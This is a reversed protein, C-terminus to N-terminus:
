TTPGPPNSVASGAGALRGCLHYRRYNLCGRGPSRYYSPRPAKTPTTAIGLTGARPGRPSIHLKIVEGIRPLVMRSMGIDLWLAHNTIATLGPLRERRWAQLILDRPKSLVNTFRTIKKRLSFVYRVIQGQVTTVRIYFEPVGGKLLFSFNVRKM